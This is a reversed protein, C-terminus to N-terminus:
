PTHRLGSSTRPFTRPVELVVNLLLSALSPARSCEIRVTDYWTYTTDCSTISKLQTFDSPDDDQSSQWPRALVHM